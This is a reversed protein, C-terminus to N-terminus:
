TTGTRTSRVSAAVILRLGTSDIFTIGSLDLVVASPDTPRPPRWPMPSTGATHMDLEGRALVRVGEPSPETVVELLRFWEDSLYMPSAARGAVPVQVPELRLALVAEDDSQPGVRYEHSSARSTTSSGRCSEPAEALAARLREHGFREDAGRTDTVGDTYLVLM